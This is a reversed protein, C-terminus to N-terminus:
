RGIRRHVTRGYTLAKLLQYKGNFSFKGGDINCLRQYDIENQQLLYELLNRSGAMSDNVIM